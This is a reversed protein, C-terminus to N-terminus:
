SVLSRITNLTIIAPVTSSAAPYPM